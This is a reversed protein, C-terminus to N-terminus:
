REIEVSFCSGDSETFSFEGNGEYAIKGIFPNLEIFERVCLPVTETEGCALSLILRIQYLSSAELITM